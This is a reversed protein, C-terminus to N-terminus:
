PGIKVKKMGERGYFVPFYMMEAKAPNLNYVGSYRPTLQVTFTYKGQKLKTCFISTKHKFYERHTEVGWYSQPKNEYSCGAPIPIEIMVYDADARVEVDVKLIATTGGKLSKVENNNQLFASKVTFDKSVKEPNSNHFQQYATFYVPANGRKDVSLKGPEIVKSFPFTKIVETKNLVLNPPEPKKGETILEPLITELILSSEYTNRWQGDKRQELFYRAIKDLATRYGGNTKLIQYALLTNQISNDWFYSNAEGWYVNGFMTTKKQKLLWQIDIPIGAKQRLSMLQLKEYLPPRYEPIRPNIKREKQRLAAAQEAQEEVAEIWDKIYYKSDLTHLLKILYLQNFRTGEALKGLLHRYLQDKNLSTTYGSQEAQLLAEVVHLSIWMEEGSGQWWGWTGEPRKNNGLKSLLEKINKEGKFPEDLYTKIKKELLIAKLKSALQENCLYEYNRLKEIESLLVPFVSAEANVTVKGLAADFNYNSSTDGSLVDFYGKTEKVGIPMLPIKRQEGDFYGNAQTMTYEFDLSDPAAGALAKAAISVTDIHANKYKIESNLLEKGNYSLKRIASEEMNTYNMLKGIVSIQDGEVAFLPSVFNASLSKFSKITMQSQGTQGRGNMAITRTNWSTIDDPFKVSFSAKGDADTLLRPQWIAYDSFNRRMSQQANVPAGDAGTQPNVKKSKILIVGNAGRVGYIATADADKLISIDAINEQDLSNIDGPFPLGDLFVLPAGKVAGSGTNLGRINVSGRLGPMGPTLPVNPVEKGAVIFSSGTTQERSRKQYGRIVVENLTTKTSKMMEIRGKLDVLSIQIDDYGNMSFVLTGREPTKATYHGKNDTVALEYKLGKMRVTVGRLPDGTNHDLVTGNIKKKFYKPDFQKENILEVVEDKVKATQAAAFYQSLSKIRADIATSLSDASQLKVAKWFYYNYGYPMVSIEEKIFYSNDKLLYIACYTGKPVQINQNQGPYIQVYDPEEPNYIIINKVYPMDITVAPDIRMYLRCSGYNPGFLNTTHSRLNLYENWISDIEGSQLPYDAYGTNGPAARLDPNFAYKTSFSKQKLLQPRFTYTYGPEKFFSHDMLDSHLFLFNERLPGVLIERNRGGYPPPNVLIDQGLGKLITKEGELNDAIRIMYKDLEAAEDPTLESPMVQITVKKNSSDAAVSLITKRNPAFELGELTVLQTATRMKIYHYGPTMTFAYRRLQQAQSFYVPIGDIYVIHLPEIAGNKVVFPSIVPAQVVTKEEIKYLDRTQTFKYYEMTDLHLSRGWKNWNLQMQGSQEALNKNPLRPKLKRGFFPRNFDPLTISGQNGFKSTYAFATVDTAPVPRDEADTVKVQMKVTQGPYVLEPSLLAVNLQKAFYAASTERSHLQGAWLYHILVHAADNARHRLVTDLTTTYGQFMVNNGSFVTYWFPIHHPNSVSVRLSDKSHIASAALNSEISNLEVTQKYGDATKLDYNFAMPDRKIVAPLEVMVSDTYSQQDNGSLVTYITAKQKVPKGAVQYDFHLSDNKFKWSISRNDEMHQLYLYQSRTENNSNSFRFDLNLNLDAKPFISDPIVVKTEGVPDMVVTSTWLTDKVFVSASHYRDIYSTKLWISVKGDPVALENEDVAKLFLVLPDGRKHGKKELRASFNVSKLEYDEYSFNNSIAAIWDAGIKEELTISYAADLRLKLSDSLAFRYEYGGEHYADITDLIISKYGDNAYAGALKVRMKKHHLAAGKTNLLYAKFRVTDLPKYKPQSFVMYGKYRKRYKEQKERAKDREPYYPKKAFMKRFFSLKKKPRKEPAINYMFYNSIGQYKVTVVTQKSSYPAVYFNSSKDFAVKKSKGITVEADRIQKGSSDTIVCRFDKGNNTFHVYTNAVPVVEYELQNGNPRVYLYNGHPLKKRSPFGTTLFSDVSTHMFSDNIIKTGGFAVSYAEQDSLKYIYTYYGSTRALTLKKQAVVSGSVVVLLLILRIIKNM